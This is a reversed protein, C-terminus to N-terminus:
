MILWFPNGANWQATFKKKWRLMEWIQQQLLKIVHFYAQAASLVFSGADSSAHNRHRMAEARVTTASSRSGSLVRLIIYVQRATQIKVYVHRLAPIKTKHADPQGSTTHWTCIVRTSKGLLQFFFTPITKRKWYILATHLWNSHLYAEHLYKLCHDTSQQGHMANADTSNSVHHMRLCLHATM